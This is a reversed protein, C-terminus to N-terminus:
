LEYVTACNDNLQVINCAFNQSLRSSSFPVRHLCFPRLGIVVQVFPTYVAFLSCALFLFYIHLGWFVVSVLLMSFEFRHRVGHQFGSVGFVVMDVFKARGILQMLPPDEVVHLNHQLAEPVLKATTWPVQAKLTTTAM